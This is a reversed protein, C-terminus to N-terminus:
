ENKDDSKSEANLLMNCIMYQDHAHPSWKGRRLLILASLYIESRKLDEEIWRYRM